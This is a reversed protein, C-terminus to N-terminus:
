PTLGMFLNSEDENKSRAIFRSEEECDQIVSKRTFGTFKVLAAVKKSRNRLLRTIEKRKPGDPDLNNNAAWEAENRSFAYGLFTVYIDHWKEPSIGTNTQPM